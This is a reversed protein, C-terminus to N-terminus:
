AADLVRVRAEIEPWIERRALKLEYRSQLNLWFQAPVGFYKELRLATDATVARKGSVIESIRGAPVDLDRALRNLSIGAPDLFEEKLIEGPKILDLDSKGDM